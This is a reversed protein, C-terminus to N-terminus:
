KVAHAYLFGREKMLALFLMGPFSAIFATTFFLTWGYRAVLVGALPGLLIRGLSAVASLLAFQGASYRTNCLSMMFAFLAATSMGSCFNEIFVASAMLAFQKGVIALIVFTLNSFAQALGFVFLARITTWRTLFLGGVFAGSITAIFSVLKYAMGVETLTFGLGRLLFNTFLQLALADGFKYFMLFLLLLIIHDRTLLDSIAEKFTQWLYKESIHTEAPRPAIITPIMSLLMLGAMLLYTLRWGMHDAFVLALGGSVLMAMRYMLVTYSVGVGREEASLIDTRYADIAIDQTASFIAVMLAVVGMARANEHPNLFAIFVLATVLGIQSIFVWVQHRGLWPFHYHDLLPAWLFKLTYPLGILSLTGITVLSVNAETFWAQLTSGTLALPLGSAFAMFFIAVLRRNTLLQTISTPM